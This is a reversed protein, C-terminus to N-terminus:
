WWLWALFMAPSAMRLATPRLIHGAFLSSLSQQSEALGSVTLCLNPKGSLATCEGPFRLVFLAQFAWCHCYSRLRLGSACGCRGSAVSWRQRQPGTQPRRQAASGPPKQGERADQRGRGGEGCPDCRAARGPGAMSVLVSDLLMESSRWLARTHRWAFRAAAVPVWTAVHGLSFHRLPCDVLQTAPGILDLTTILRHTKLIAPAWDDSAQLESNHRALVATQSRM